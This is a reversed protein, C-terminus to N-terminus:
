KEKLYKAGEEPPMTNIIVESALEFGGYKSVRPVVELHWHYSSSEEHITPLTHVYFNLPPSDLTDRMMFLVESLADSMAKMSTKTTEEFQSEHKKPLIWTEFPFRPAYFCFAIFQDNEYVIRKKMKKEHNIIDCYACAGNIGYYRNAGDIEREVTNSVINSTFIQAHPHNISAGAEAGHNYIPIISVVKLNEKMWIYRDRIVEMMENMLPKPFNLLDTDHEKIVVIEHDGVSDRARYFGDEPYFSRVTKQANEQTFAPYRNEMVYINDTESGKVKENSNFSDTGICFPCKSKDSIKVSKPIVFDKPRKAREPAVVVWDGTIINQRLEPM